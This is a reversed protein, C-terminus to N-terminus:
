EIAAVDRCWDTMMLGTDTRMQQLLPQIKTPSNLRNKELLFAV